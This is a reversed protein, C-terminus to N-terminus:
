LYQVEDAMHRLALQVTASAVLVEGFLKATYLSHAESLTDLLTSKTTYVLADLETSGTQLALTHKEVNRTEKHRNTIVTITIFGRITTKDRETIHPPKVRVLRSNNKHKAIHAM